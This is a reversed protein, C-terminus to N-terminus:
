LEEKSIMKYRQQAIEIEKKPTTQSKKKFAHLVYVFDEKRAVYFVRFAGTNDRIRIEEVGNGIVSMPKFDNPQLGHQVRDLQYGAERRM